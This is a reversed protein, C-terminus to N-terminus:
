LLSMYFRGALVSKTLGETEKIQARMEPSPSKPKPTSTPIPAMCTQIDHTIYALVGCEMWSTWLVVKTGKHHNKSLLTRTTHDRHLEEHKKYTITSRDHFAPEATSVWCTSSTPVSTGWEEQDSRVIGRSEWWHHCWSLSDGPRCFRMHVEPHSSVQKTYLLSAKHKYLDM